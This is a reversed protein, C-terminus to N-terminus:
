ISYWVTCGTSAMFYLFWGTVLLKDGRWTTVWPLCQSPMEFLLLEPLIEFQLWDSIIDYFFQKLPQPQLFTLDSSKPKMYRTCSKCVEREFLCPQIESLIRRGGLVAETFAATLFCFGLGCFAYLHLEQITFEDLCYVIHIYLAWCFIHQDPDYGWPVKRYLYNIFTICAQTVYYLWAALCAKAKTDLVVFPFYQSKKKLDNSLHTIYIFQLKEYKLIKM